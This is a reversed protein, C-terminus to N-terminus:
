RWAMSASRDASRSPDGPRVRAPRIDVGQPVLGIGATNVYVGDRTGADVVKTDGTVLRVGAVRAAAGM